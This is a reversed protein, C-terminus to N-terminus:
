DPATSVCCRVSRGPQKGRTFEGMGDASQCGIRGTVLYSLVGYLGLAGLIMALASIVGLTLMTFTLQVM